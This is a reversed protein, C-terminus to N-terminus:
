FCHQEHSWWLSSSHKRDDETHASRQNVADGVEETTEARAMADDPELPNVIRSADIGLRGVERRFEAPTMLVPTRPACAVGVVCAALAGFLRM